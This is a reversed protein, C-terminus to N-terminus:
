TNARRMISIDIKRKNIKGRGNVTRLFINAKIEVLAKM